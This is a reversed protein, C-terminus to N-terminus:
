NGRICRRLTVVSEEDRPSKGKQSYEGTKESSMSVGMNGPKAM